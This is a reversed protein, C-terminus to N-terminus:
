QLRPDEKLADEIEKDSWGCNHLFEIMEDEGSNALSSGLQCAAEIVLDALAEERTMSMKIGVFQLTDM